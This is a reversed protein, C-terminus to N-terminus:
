PCRRQPLPSFDPSHFKSELNGDLDSIPSDFVVVTADPLDLSLGRSIDEILIIYFSLHQSAKGATVVLAGKPARCTLIVVSTINCSLSDGWLM